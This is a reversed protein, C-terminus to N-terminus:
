SQPPHVAEHSPKQSGGPLDRPPKHRLVFKNFAGVAKAYRRLSQSEIHEANRMAASGDPHHPGIDNGVQRLRAAERRAEEYNGRAAHLAARLDAEIKVLDARPPYEPHAEGKEGPMRSAGEEALYRNLEDRARECLAQRRKIEEMLIGLGPGIDRVLGLQAVAESFERARIAYAQTLECIRM